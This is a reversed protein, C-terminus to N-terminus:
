EMYLVPNKGGVRFPDLIKARFIRGGIWKAGRNEKWRVMFKSGGQHSFGEV